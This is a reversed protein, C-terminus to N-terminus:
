AVKPYHKGLIPRACVNISSKRGEESEFKLIALMTTFRSIISLLAALGFLQGAVYRCGVELLLQPM